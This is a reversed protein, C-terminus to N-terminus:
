GSTAAGAVLVDEFRQVEALTDSVPVHGSSVHWVFRRQADIRNVGFLSLVEDVLLWSPASELGATARFSSDRWDAADDCALHRVPNRNVYAISALQHSDNEITTAFFRNRFVHGSRGHRQNIYRAHGGILQQMGASISGCPARTVLHVHNTMLCWALVEWAYSGAIEGLRFRFANRDIADRVIWGRNNGKAVLHHSRSADLLRPPRAM